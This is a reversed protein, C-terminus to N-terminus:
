AAARGEYTLRKGEAGKIALVAREADEVGLKSRNNYRFTFEDLYRQFHQEGCHQYVGNMGRKFIGFFGEVTNTTVDGRAYEKASHNVTEHTAFEAGVRPYLNSEDTHLRSKRDAHTVMVNRINKATVVPMHMARAEGGREVLAFIPRKEAAKGGKLYPRGRRQPSPTPTEKKGHYAEDAEVIKGEGGLPGPNVDRMAERIRHAMFWATKYTVALMRGLQNASMGKKSAAMLHFGLVWKHLPIHSREMVSGNTVTFHGRCANCQHLGVRHSQGALRTIGRVAGCHPCFPGNPWRIAEMHARAADEDHFIPDTLNVTM